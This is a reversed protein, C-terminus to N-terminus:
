GQLKYSSGKHIHLLLFLAAMVDNSAIFAIPLQRATIEDIPLYISM